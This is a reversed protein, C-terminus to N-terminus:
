VERTRVGSAYTKVLEEGNERHILSILTMHNFLCCAVRKAVISTFHEAPIKAKGQEIMRRVFLAEERWCRPVRLPTATETEAIPRAAPGAM